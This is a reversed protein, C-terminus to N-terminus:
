KQHRLPKYRMKLVSSSPQPIWCGLWGKCSATAFAQTHGPVGSLEWRLFDQDMLLFKMGHIFSWATGSLCEVMVLLALIIIMISVCNHEVSKKGWISNQKRCNIPYILSHTHTQIPSECMRIYFRLSIFKLSFKNKLYSVVDFLFFCKLHQSAKVM